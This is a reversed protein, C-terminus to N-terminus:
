DPSEYIEIRAGGYDRVVSPHPDGLHGATRRRREFILLGGPTLRRLLPKILAALEDLAYPPDYYILDHRDRRRRVYSRVDVPLVRCRDEVGLEGANERILLARRRDSEVFEARAAGRSLMELGFVGSGACVDAVRAGPIRHSVMSAVAERVKQQTPRFGSEGPAVRVCRGGLIGAVIRLKM